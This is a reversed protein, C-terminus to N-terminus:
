HQKTISSARNPLDRQGDNGSAEVAGLEAVENQPDIL